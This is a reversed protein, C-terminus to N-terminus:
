KGPNQLLQALNKTQDVGVGWAFLNLYDQTTGFAPNKAYFLSLGSILALGFAFIFSVVEVREFGAQISFDQSPKIRLPKLMSANVTAGEYTVSVNAMLEGDAPAFVVVQPESSRAAFEQPKGPTRGEWFRRLRWRSHVHRFTWEYTLGRSILFTSLLTPDGPTSIRFTLPVYAEPSDSTTPALVIQPSVAACRVWTARDALRFLGDLVEGAAQLTLLPQFEPADRREWLLKLRAYQEEVDLKGSRDAPAPAPPATTFPKVTALLARVEPSRQAATSGREVDDVLKAIAASLDTWYCGDMKAVDVWAALLDLEAKLQAVATESLAQADLRTVIRSLAALARREISVHSFARSFDTRLGCIRELPGLM